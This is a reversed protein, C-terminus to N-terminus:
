SLLSLRCLNRYAVLFFLNYFLCLLVLSYDTDDSLYLYAENRAGGNYRKQKLQVIKFQTDKKIENISDFGCLQKKLYNAYTKKAIAVSNDTSMDDVFIIEYNKYTQNLISTLCKEITHEYNYNPIIIGIKYDKKEPLKDYDKDNITAKKFCDLDYKTLNIDVFGCYKYNICHINLKLLEELPEDDFLYIYENDPKIAGISNKDIAIIM